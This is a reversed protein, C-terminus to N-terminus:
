LCISSIDFHALSLQYASKPQRIMADPIRRRAIHVTKATHHSNGRDRAGPQM